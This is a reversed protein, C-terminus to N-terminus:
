IEHYCKTHTLITHECEYSYNDVSDHRRRLKKNKLGMVGLSRLTTLNVLFDGRNIAATAAVSRAITAATATPPTMVAALLFIRNHKLLM